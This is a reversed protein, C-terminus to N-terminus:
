VSEKAYTTNIYRTDKYAVHIPSDIYGSCIPLDNNFYFSVTIHNLNIEILQSLNVKM